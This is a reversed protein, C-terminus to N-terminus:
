FDDDTRYGYIGRELTQDIKTGLQGLGYLELQLLFAVNHDSDVSDTYRRVLARVRWCCRGYEVGALAELLRDDRLSYHHRGILSFRDSVPWLGALDTHQTVGDRLRYAANFVRRSRDRYSLQALAQEITGNNGDHPDWQLGARARWGGGFQTALEGVLSSSHERPVPEGPLRVERDDFYLIQGISARLLEAGNHADLTRSTMALALQNADGVRDPGSFRNDRFLNDFRFDLEATDFVPQDDQGEGPVLLYFLRPELTQDVDEGFLRTARDFYLGADLSFVGTLHSPEDNGGPAVATLDYGTYRAGVKPTLFGWPERLPLSLAPFLDVRQGRVSEKRYFNVYEASLHYTTGAFGDPRELGLLLQPLRSYPRDSPLILRDITQYGQARGLLDWDDGHYRLEGAREVHTTSTVALSDGLDTLYDRDSVYGLRVDAETRPNFDSHGTLTASGRDERSGARELDNPLYEAALAGSTTATLFRFEGGLMPGRRSLLRPTLTLDYNPALNLYYPVSLDLGSNNSYGFSPILLGSRRRDDIPFTFTPVYLIPVGLFHLKARDATGLGEDHDLALADASLLWDADGPRCTTYSIKRYRSHGDGLFEAEEADGRAGIAPVRYSAQEIRGQGSALEYHAASGAIRIDPRTVMFNGRADVEGTSRNLVLEDAQMRLAGRSLRVDGSFVVQEPDVSAEAADASVELPGDMAVPEASAFAPRAGGLAARCSHWDLSQDLGRHAGTRLEEALGRHFTADPLTETVPPWTPGPATPGPSATEAPVAPLPAASDPAAEAPPEPRPTAPVAEDPPPEAATPPPARLDPARDTAAARDLAECQWGRRDPTARCDWGGEAQVGTHLLLLACLSQLRITRSTLTVHNTKATGPTSDAWGAPLATLAGPRRRPSAPRHADAPSLIEYFVRKKLERRHTRRRM